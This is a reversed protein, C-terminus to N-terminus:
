CAPPTSRPPWTPWSSASPRSPRSPSASSVGSSPTPWPRTSRAGPSASPCPPSRSGAATSSRWRRSSATARRASSPTRGSRATRSSSRRGHRLRADRGQGRAQRGHRGAHRAPRPLRLHRPPGQGTEDPGHGRRGRRRRRPHHLEQDRQPGLRRREPRGHDEDGRFGLRGGARDAGLRRPGRGLGAPAAVRPATEESGFILIHNTCLSNHAAVSLGIGGEVAGSSKSSRRRLAPLDPGVRRVRRPHPGGDHGPRRAAPLDRAPFGAKEDWERVHPAIEARAFDRVMERCEKLSDMALEPTM